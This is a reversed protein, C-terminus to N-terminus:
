LNEYRPKESGKQYDQDFGHSEGMSFAYECLKIIKKEIEKYTELHGISLMLDEYESSNKLEKVLQSESTKEGQCSFRTM